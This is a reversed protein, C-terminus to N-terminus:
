KVNRRCEGGACVSVAVDVFESYDYFLFKPIRFNFKGKKGEAAKVGLKRLWKWKGTLRRVCFSFAPALSFPFYVNAVRFM